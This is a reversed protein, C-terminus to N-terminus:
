IYKKKIKELGNKKKKSNRGSGFKKRIKEWM